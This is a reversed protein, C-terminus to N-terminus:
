PSLWKCLAAFVCVLGGIGSDWCDGERLVCWQGLLGGLSGGVCVLAGAAARVRFWACVCMCVRVCVCLACVCPVCVVSRLGTEVVTAVAHHHALASVVLPVAGALVVATTSEYRRSHLRPPTSRPWLCCCSPGVTSGSCVCACSYRVRLARPYRVRLNLFPLTM